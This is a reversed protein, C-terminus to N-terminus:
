VREDKLGELGREFSNERNTIRADDRTQVRILHIILNCQPKNQIIKEDIQRILPAELIELTRLASDVWTVANPQLSM